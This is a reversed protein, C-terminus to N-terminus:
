DSQNSERLMSNNKKMVDKFEDNELGILYFWFFISIALCLGLIIYLISSSYYLFSVSRFFFFDLIANFLFLILSILMISECLKLNKSKYEFM